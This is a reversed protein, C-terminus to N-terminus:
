VLNSRGSILTPISTAQVVMFPLTMNPNSESQMILGCGREPFVVNFIVPCPGGGAQCYMFASCGATTACSKSCEEVSSLLNTAAPKVISDMKAVKGPAAIFSSGDATNNIEHGNDVIYGEYVPV